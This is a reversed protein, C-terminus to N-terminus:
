DSHCRWAGDRGATEYASCPRGSWGRRTGRVAGVKRLRRFALTETMPRSVGAKSSDSCDGPALPAFM